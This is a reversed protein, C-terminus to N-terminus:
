DKDAGGKHKKYHHMFRGFAKDKNRRESLSLDHFESEKRLKLYNRLHQETIDNRELAARVACGPESDHTCDSFRCQGALAAVDAFTEEIGVDAGLMGLERMGPMDILLAGNALRMLHRRTTTHRGEGTHSVAGTELDGDGLLRNILTTKGVGSSGLLCYTKGPTMLARVQDVGEGTVNSLCFVPAGVGVLRIQAILRELAEPSVLDTKTLLVVPEIRGDRAMVLYREIRPINFDFHCSQVILAVDINAAIMQFEVDRGAAKRRLFSRRPLVCHISAQTGADRYRVGVWDGVCPLDVSSAALHLLKGTLEAPVEGEGNHVLYRGRDVATVRAASLDLAVLDNVHGELGPDLGLETLGM